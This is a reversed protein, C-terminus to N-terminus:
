FFIQLLLILCLGPIGLGGVVLATIPNAGVYIGTFGSLANILLLLILGIFSNLILKLFLKLPKFFIKTVVFLLLIGLIYGVAGAFQVQTM